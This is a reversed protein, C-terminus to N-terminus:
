VFGNSLTTPNLSSPTEGLPTWRGDIKSERWHNKKEDKSRNTENERFLYSNIDVVCISTHSYWIRRKVVRNFLKGRLIFVCLLQAM